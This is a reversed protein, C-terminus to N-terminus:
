RTECAKDLLRINTVLLILYGSGILVSSATLAVRFELGFIRSCLFILVIGLLVLLDIQPKIYQKGHAAHHTLSQGVLLGVGWPIFCALLAGSLVWRENFVFPLLHKISIIYIPVSFCILVLRRLFIYFKKRVMRPSNYLHTSTYKWFIQNVAQSVIAIPGLGLTFAISFLGADKEGYFFVIILPMGSKWATSLFSGLATFLGNNLIMRNSSSLLLRWACIYGTIANSLNHFPKFNKTLQSFRFSRRFRRDSAIATLYLSCSLLRALLYSAPLIIFKDYFSGITCVSGMFFLVQLVRQYPILDMKNIRVICSELIPFFEELLVLALLISATLYHPVFQSDISLYYPLFLSFVILFPFSALVVAKAFALLKSLSGYKLFVPIFQQIQLAGITSILLSCSLMSSWLGFEEPTFIKLVLPLLLIAVLQSFVSGLALKLFLKRM